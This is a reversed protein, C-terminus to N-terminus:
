GCNYYDKFTFARLKEINEPQLIFDCIRDVEDCLSKTFSLLDPFIVNWGKKNEFLRRLEKNDAGARYFSDVFSSDVEGEIMFNPRSSDNELFYGPHHLFMYAKPHKFFNAWHKISRLVPYRSWDFQQGNVVGLEQYVVALREALTYFLLSYTTLYTRVKETGAFQKVFDLVNLCGEEFNCGICNHFTLADMDEVEPGVLDKREREDFTDFLLCYRSREGKGAGDSKFQNHWNEFFDAVKLTQESFYSSEAM